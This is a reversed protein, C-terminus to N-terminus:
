EVVCIRCIYWVAADQQTSHDFSDVMRLVSFEFIPQHRM